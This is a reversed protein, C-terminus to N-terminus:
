PRSKDQLHGKGTLGPLSKSQIQFINLCRSIFAKSNAQKVAM